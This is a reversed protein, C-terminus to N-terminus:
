ACLYACYLAVLEAECDETTFGEPPNIAFEHILGMVSEALLAASLRPTRVGVDARADLFDSLASTLETMVARAQRGLARRVAPQEHLMRHLRPRPSNNEVSARVLARIAEQPKPEHSRLRALLPRLRTMSEVLHAEALAVLVADKTPFYQYLSGISVGAREAIQDTTAAYGRREFVQAAGELIVRVTAQAREQVPKRRPSQRSPTRPM